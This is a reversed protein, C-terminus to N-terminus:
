LSLFEEITLNTNKILQTLLGIKLEKHIPITLPKFADPKPHVLRVHSGKQRVVQYGLVQFKKVTEKGSIGTLVNM